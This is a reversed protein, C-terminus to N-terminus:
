DNETGRMEAYCMNQPPRSMVNGKSDLFESIEISKQYEQVNAFWLIYDFDHTEWGIKELYSIFKKSSFWGENLNPKLNNMFCWDLYLNKIALHRCKAYDCDVRYGEEKERIYGIPFVTFLDAEGVIKGSGGKNKTEYIYIKTVENMPEKNTCAQHFDDNRLKLWNESTNFRYFSAYWETLSFETRPHMDKLIKKRFEYWKEKSLIQHTYPPNISIMISKM